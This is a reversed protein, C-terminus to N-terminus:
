PHRFEPNRILKILCRFRPPVHLEETFIPDNGERGGGGGQEEMFDDQNLFISFIM